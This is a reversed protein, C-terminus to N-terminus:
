RCPGDRPAERPNSSGWAVRDQANCLRELREIVMSGACSKQVNTMFFDDGNMWSQHLWLIWIGLVMGTSIFIMKHEALRRPRPESGRVHTM